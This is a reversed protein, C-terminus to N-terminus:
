TVSCFIAPAPHSLSLVLVLVCITIIEEVGAFSM